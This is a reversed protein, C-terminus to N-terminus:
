RSEVCDESQLPTLASLIAGSLAHDVRGLKEQKVVVRGILALQRCETAADLAKYADVAASLAEDLREETKVKEFEAAGMSEALASFRSSASHLRAFPIEHAVAQRYEALIPDSVTPGPPVLVIANPAGLVYYFGSDPDLNAVFLYSAGLDLHPVGDSTYVVGDITAEPYVLTIHDASEGKIRASVSAAYTTTPNVPDDGDRNEQVSLEEDVTAVLVHTGVGVVQRLDSYDVTSSGEAEVTKTDARKGPREGASSTVLLAASVCGIAVLGGLIVAVGRRMPKTRKRWMVGKMPLNYHFRSPVLVSALHWHGWQRLVNFSSQSPSLEPVSSM